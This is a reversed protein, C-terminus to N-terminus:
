RRISTGGLIRAAATYENPRLPDRLPFILRVRPKEPRHRRTSHGIWELHDVGSLGLKLADMLEITAYDVDLVMASRELITEAKRLGNHCYAAFWFGKVSKLRTQEAPSLAELYALPEQTRFPTAFWEHLEEWTLTLNRVKGSYGKGRAINLQHAANAFKRNTKTM